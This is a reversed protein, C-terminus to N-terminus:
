FSYIKKYKENLYDIYQKPDLGKGTTKKIIEEALMSNGKSHVHKELWDIIPKFNHKKINSKTKPLDKIIQNYLQASYISGIAYTPFYGFGGMSWHVDQLIGENDNKITLGFMEKFKKNWEEKAKDVTLKGNMLDREIEFRLIIHLCYTVEDAEVRVYSPKVENIKLFFKKFEIKKIGKAFTSYYNKWFIKNKAIMNEWFRSQSEHLGMSPSDHLITYRYKDPLNLEYLAHGGEHVAASFSGLQDEYRTTIRVDNKGMSTTFPHASVSLNVRKRDLLMKKVIYKVNRKQIEEPITIKIRNQDKYKKTSKIKTLLLILEKKIEEFLITLKEASMGEEFDDLLADYPSLKPNIMKAQKQKLAVLKKLEPKFIDYNNKERAERWKAGAISATKTLEKTFSEPINRVKKIEKHFKNVVIGDIRSLKKKKLKNLYNYLKPNTVKKHILVSIYEQQEARSLYADKPMNTEEDWGLLASINGLVTLEKQVDYIYKLEKKM